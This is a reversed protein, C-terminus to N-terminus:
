DVHDLIVSQLLHIMGMLLVTVCLTTVVGYIRRPELPYEPLMPQQLVSVHKIARAADMRGKELSVLATKYLDQKFNLELQLRQEEEVLSNLPLGRTSAVKAREREIQREVASLQQQLTRRMPHDRGASRPLSALQTQIETRQEELKAIIAHISEVTVRPSALGKQNQFDLLRKSAALVQEQAQAVQTNLFDLQARALEHSMNNMFREGESVLMGAIARATKADYAQADIRLVGAYDDYAIGVRSLYHRHFWEISADGFWMRSGIDHSADSYHARLDLKADLKRLMDVSQLYELLLLQDTKNSGGIAGFMSSIDLAPAIVQDTNQVLVVAESVYRDSSFLWYCISIFGCLLLLLFLGRFVLRVRLTMRGELSEASAPALRGTQIALAAM